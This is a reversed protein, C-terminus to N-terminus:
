RSWTEPNYRINYWMLHLRKDFLRKCIPCCYFDGLERLKGVTLPQEMVRSIASCTPCDMDTDEGWKICDKSFEELLEEERKVDDILKKIVGDKSITAFGKRVADRIRKKEDLLEAPHNYLGYKSLEIKIGHCLEELDRGALKVTKDTKEVPKFSIEIKGEADIHIDFDAVLLWPFEELLNEAIWWRKVEVFRKEVEVPLEVM